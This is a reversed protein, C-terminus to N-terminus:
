LDGTSIDKIEIKTRKKKPKKAPKSSLSNSVDVVKRLPDVVWYRLDVMKEFNSCKKM